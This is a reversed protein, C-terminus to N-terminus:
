AVAPPEHPPGLLSGAVLADVVREVPPRYSGERIALRLYRLRAESCGSPPDTLDVETLPTTSM